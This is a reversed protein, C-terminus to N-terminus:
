YVPTIRVQALRLLLLGGCGHECKVTFALSDKQGDVIMSLTKRGIFGDQTVGKIIMNLQRHAAWTIRPYPGPPALLRVVSQTPRM